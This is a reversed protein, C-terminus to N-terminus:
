GRNAKRNLLPGHQRILFEELEYRGLEVPFIAVTCSKLYDTVREDEVDSFYRKKGDREQLTFGLIETGVHRRLASFYTQGSHTAIRESIDSSEGIYILTGTKDKVLYVGAKPVIRADFWPTFPSQLAARAGEALLADHSQQVDNWLHDHPAIKFRTRKDLQFNNLRTPLNVIGFEEVEKRGINTRTYQIKFQDISILQDVKKRYTKFFTSTKPNAQQKVRKELERAEGIYYPIADLSILYNGSYKERVSSFDDYRQSVLNFLGDSLIENSQGQIDKWTFNGTQINNSTLDMNGNKTSVIV